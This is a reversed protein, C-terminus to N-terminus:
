RNVARPDRLRGAGKCACLVNLVERMLIKRAGFASLHSEGDTLITQISMGLVGAWRTPAQGSVGPAASASRLWWIQKAARKTIIAFCSESM